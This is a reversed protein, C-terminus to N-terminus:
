PHDARFIAATSSSFSNIEVFLAPPLRTLKKLFNNLLSFTHGCNENQNDAYNKQAQAVYEVAGPKGLLPAHVGVTRSGRVGFEVVLVKDRGVGGDQHAVVERGDGAGAGDVAGDLRSHEAPQGNEEPDDDATDEEAGHVVEASQERGDTVAAAGDALDYLVVDAGLGVLEEDDERQQHEDEDDRAEGGDNGTRELGGNIGVAVGVVEDGHAHVVGGAVGGRRGRAQQEDDYGDDEAVEDVAPAGLDTGRGDDADDADDDDGEDAQVDADVQRTGGPYDEDGHVDGQGGQERDPYEELRTVIQGAEQQVAHHDQSEDADEAAGPAALELELGEGAPLGAAAIQDRGQEDGDGAAGDGAEVAQDGGAGAGLLDVGLLVGLDDAVAGHDDLADQGDEGQDSGGGHPM